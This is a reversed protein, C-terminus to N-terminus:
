LFSKWRLPYTSQHSLVLKRNMDGTLFVTVAEGLGSPVYHQAGSRPPVDVYFLGAEALGGLRLKAWPVLDMVRGYSNPSLFAYVRRYGGLRIFEAIAEGIKHRKWYALNMPQNYDHIFEDPLVLGYGGSLILSDAIRDRRAQWVLQRFQPSANYMLGSYLDLAAVKESLLNTKGAMGTRGALLHERTEHLRHLVSSETNEPVVAEPPSPQKEGSCPIIILVPASQRPNVMSTSAQAQMRAEFESLLDRNPPSGGNAYEVNWLGTRRITPNIAYHGLWSPSASPGKEQALNWILWHELAKRIANEAVPLVAYTFHREFYRSVLAETCSGDRNQIASAVHKRFVSNRSTRRYHARLRTPLNGDVENIGVRVIRPGEQTEEGDEFFFYIGDAPLNDFGDNVSRRPLTWVWQHIRDALRSTPGASTSVAPMPSVVHSPEHPAHISVQHDDPDAEIRLTLQSNLRIHFSTAPYKRSEDALLPGLAKVHAAGGAASFKGNHLRLSGTWSQRCGLAQIDSVPLPNSAGATTAQKLAQQLSSFISLWYTDYQSPM